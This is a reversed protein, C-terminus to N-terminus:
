KNLKEILRKKVAGNIKPYVLSLVNKYRINSEENLYALLTVMAIFRPIKLNLQEILLKAIDEDSNCNIEKNIIAEFIEYTDVNKEM